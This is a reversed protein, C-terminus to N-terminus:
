TLTLSDLMSGIDKDELCREVLRCEYTVKLMLTSARLFVERLYQNDEEICFQFGKFQGHRVRQAADIDFGQQYATYMLDFDLTPTTRTTTNIGLRGYGDPRYVEIGHTEAKCHWEALVNMGWDMRAVQMM